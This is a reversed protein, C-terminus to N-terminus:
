CLFQLFQLLGDSQSELTLLGGHSLCAPFGQACKVSRRYFDVMVETARVPDDRCADEWNHLLVSLLGFIDPLARLHARARGVVCHAELDSVFTYLEPFLEEFGRGVDGERAIFLGRCILGNCFNCCM